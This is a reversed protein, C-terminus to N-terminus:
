GAWATSGSSVAAIPPKIGPSCGLSRRMGPSPLPSIGPSCDPSTCIAPSVCSSIGLHRGLAQLIARLHSRPLSPSIRLSAKFRTQPLESRSPLMSQPWRYLLEGGPPHAQHLLLLFRDSQPVCCAPPRPALPSTRRLHGKGPRESSGQSAARLHDTPPYRRCDFSAHRHDGGIGQSARPCSRSM